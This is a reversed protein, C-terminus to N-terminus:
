QLSTTKNLRRGKRLLPNVKFQVVCKEKLLSLAKSNNADLSASAIASKINNVKDM